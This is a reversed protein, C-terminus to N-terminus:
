ESKYLANYLIYTWTKISVANTCNTSQLTWENHPMYAAAQSVYRDAVHYALLSPPYTWSGFDIYCTQKDFPFYYIDVPCTSQIRYGPKWSLTGNSTIRVRYKSNTEISYDQGQNCCSSCMVLQLM